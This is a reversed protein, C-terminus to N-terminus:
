TGEAGAEDAGFIRWVMATAVQYCMCDWLHNHKGKPTWIVRQAQSKPNVEVHRRECKMHNEFVKSLDIPYEIAGDNQTMRWLIDKIQNSAIMIYRAHAGNRTRYRMIGSYLREGRRGRKDRFSFSTKVGDGKIGLWGNAAILDGIREADYGIDMVVRAPEIGYQEALAVLGPESGGQSPIYGEYLLAMKGAGKWAAVTAWFHDGGVDVTLFRQIEGEVPLANAVSEKQYQGGRVIKVPADIMEDSWFDCRNKQRWQRLPNFDGANKAATASLFEIVDDRWPRWWIALADIKFGRNGALGDAGPIYGGMGNDMNSDSLARRTQVDDSHEHGCARCCLRATAASAQIDTTGDDGEIVEFRLGSWDFPQAEGCHCRWSFRAQDTKMFEIYLESKEFGGQSVLYVKRNWRNHHRAQFERVLGHIWRWVEDGYLWRCSKETFSSLNAGSIVIPMHPFIIAGKRTQHRDKSWLREISRVSRLAPMLRTESWFKADEDTQSAYIMPGPNESVIYATLAEAMTSKGSGTPAVCVVQRTEADAACEMPAKWWPTQAPDFFSARESNAIRVNAAAWAWPSLDTPPRFGLTAGIIAPSTM